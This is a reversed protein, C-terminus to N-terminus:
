PDKIPVKATLDFVETSRNNPNIPSEKAGDKDIIELGTSALKGLQILKNKIATNQIQEKGLELALTLEDISHNITYYEDFKIGKSELERINKILHLKTVQNM